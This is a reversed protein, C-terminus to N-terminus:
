WGPPAGRQDRNSGLYAWKLFDLARPRPACGLPRPLGGPVRPNASEPQRAQDMRM